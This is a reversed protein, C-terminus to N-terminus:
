RRYNWNYMRQRIIAPFNREAAYNRAVSCNCRHAIWVLVAIICHSTDSWARASDVSFGQVLNCSCEEILLVAMANLTKRQKVYASKSLLSYLFSILIEVYFSTSVRAMQPIFLLYSHCFIEIIWIYERTSDKYLNEYFRHRVCLPNSLSSGTKYDFIFIWVFVLREIKYM